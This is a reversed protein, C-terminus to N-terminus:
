DWAWKKKKANQSSEGSLSFLAGGEVKMVPGTVAEKRDGCPMTREVGKGGLEGLSLHTSGKWAPMKVKGKSRGQRGVHV